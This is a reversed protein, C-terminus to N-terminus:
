CATAVLSLYGIAGNEVADELEHIADLLRQGTEGMMGLLEEYEVRRQARDRMALFDDRHSRVDTVSFGAAEIRELLHSQSRQGTLCLASAVQEPVDPLDGEVVIDSLALRGDPAAVRRTEAMAQGLDNALCLVCEALVVDVSGTEIPLQGLDGRLTRDGDPEHDLGIADAGRARALSLSGGSGCGVDLLRTGDTVGARDLLAETAREGGPHLPEGVVLRMTAWPDALAADVSPFM